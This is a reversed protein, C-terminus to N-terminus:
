RRIGDWLFDIEFLFVMLVRLNLILCILFELFSVKFNRLFGRVILLSVKLIMCVKFM